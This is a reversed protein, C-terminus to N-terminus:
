EEILRIYGNETASDAMVRRARALYGANPWRRLVLEVDKLITLCDHLADLNRGYWEPLCLAETLVDHFQDPTEIIEGDLIM